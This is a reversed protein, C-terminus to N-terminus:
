EAELLCRFGITDLKDSPAYGLRFSARADEPSSRWHGGRLVKDGDRYEREQLIVNLQEYPRHSGATWEWVGGLMDYLGWANSKKQAVLPISASSNLRYWAIEDLAGYRPTATGGRVAYEWEAESPLRGGAWKCYAQAEDWTVNVVPQRGPGEAKGFRRYADNTVETQGLWYDRPVQEEHQPFETVFCEDDDMGCGMMFKGAPIRVYTQGDKSNVRINGPTSACSSLLVAM